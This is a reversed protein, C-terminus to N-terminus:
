GNRLRAKMQSLTWVLYKPLYPIKPLEAIFEHWDEETLTYVWPPINSRLMNTSGAIIERKIKESFLPYEDGKEEAVQKINEFIAFPINPPKTKLKEIVSQLQPNMKGSKHKMYVM